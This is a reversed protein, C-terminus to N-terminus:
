VLRKSLLEFRRFLMTFFQCNTLPGRAAPSGGMTCGACHSQMLVLDQLVRHRTSSRRKELRQTSHPHSFASPPRWCLCVLVSNINSLCLLIAVAWICRASNLLKKKWRLWKHIYSLSSNILSPNLGFVPKLEQPHQLPSGTAQRSNLALGCHAVPLLHVCVDM